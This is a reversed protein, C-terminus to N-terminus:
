PLTWVQQNRLKLFLVRVLLSVVMEVELFGLHIVDLGVCHKLFEAQAEWPDNLEGSQGGSDYLDFGVRSYKQIMDYAGDNVLGMERLRLGNMGYHHFM